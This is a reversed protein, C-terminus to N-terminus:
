LSLSAKIFNMRKTEYTNKRKHLGKVNKFVSVLKNLNYIQESTNKFPRMFSKLAKSSNFIDYLKNINNIFDITFQALPLINSVLETCM